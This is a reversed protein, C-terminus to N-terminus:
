FNLVPVDCYMKTNVIIKMADRKACHAPNSPIKPANKAPSINFLNIGFIEGNIFLISNTPFAIKMGKKKIPIPIIIFKRANTVSKCEIHTAIIIVMIAITVFHIGAM